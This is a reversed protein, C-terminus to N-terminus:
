DQMKKLSLFEDVVATPLIANKIYRKDENWFAHVLTLTIKERFASAKPSIIKKGKNDPLLYSPKSINLLSHLSVFRIQYKKHQILHYIKIHKYHLWFLGSIILPPISIVETHKKDDWRYRSASNVIWIVHDGVGGNCTLPKVGTVYNGNHYFLNIGSLSYSFNPYHSLAFFIFWFDTRIFRSFLRPFIRFGYHVSQIILKGTKRFIRPYRDPKLQEVKALITKFRELKKTFYVQDGDVKMYYKYTTKVLGFNYYNAANHISQEHFRNSEEKGLRGHPAVFPKYDFFRIKGPYRAAYTLAIDKTDDESEDYTIILEDLVDIVSEICKALTLSENKIRLHGTLGFPRDSGLKRFDEDTVIYDAPNYDGHTCYECSCLNRTIM